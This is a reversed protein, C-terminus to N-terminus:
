KKTTLKWASEHVSKKGGAKTKNNMAFFVQFSLHFKENWALYSLIFSYEFNYKLKQSLKIHVRFGDIVVSLFIKGFVWNFQIVRVFWRAFKFNIWKAIEKCGYKTCMDFQGLLGVM